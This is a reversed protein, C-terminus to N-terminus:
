SERVTAQHSSVRKRRPSSPSGLPSAATKHSGNKLQSALDLQNILFDFAKYEGRINELAVKAEEVVKFQQECRALADSRLEELQQKDM